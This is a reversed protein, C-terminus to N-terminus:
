SSKGSEKRWVYFFGILIFFLALGSPILNRSDLSVINYAKSRKLKINNATIHKKSNAWILNGKTKRVIKKLKKDTSYINSLEVGGGNGIIAFAKNNGNIFRYTGQERAIIKSSLWGDKNDKFNLNKVSGSPTIMELNNDTQSYERKLVTIINDKVKTKIYGKELEPEKMLWHSVNRLLEKYPGARGIGKAWLWINDSTLVAVRGKGVKDLVLLPNNDVGNILVEGHTKFVETQSFWKGPKKYNIYIDATVPSQKGEKTLQPIYSRLLVPSKNNKLAVPLIEGLETNFIKQESGDSGMAMFLAGGNKVFNSINDFYRQQLLNYHMYKDFIILDFDNIKNEFLEKVPFMILSMENAPVPNFSMPSRLITFHVLDIAPDSKLLNRWSREGMHPVGSILLVKLRDRVGNVVAIAKNNIATLEGKEKDISFEFINKGSQSVKFSYKNEINPKINYLAIEKGNKFIHLKKTKKIYGGKVNLKIKIDFSKNLLSYSPAQTIKVEYDFENKRGTLIVNIPAINKLTKVNDPVDGIQGDTIIVTGLIDKQPITRLRHELATFLSTNQNKKSTFDRGANVRILKIDKFSSKIDSFVKNSVEERDAIKNSPSQDFVVLLKGPLPKRVESITVPNLFLIAFLIFFFGRIYLDPLNKRWAIIFLNVIVILLLILYIQPILPSIELIKNM